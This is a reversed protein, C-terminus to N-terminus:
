TRKVVKRIDCVHKRLREIVYDIEEITNERSFSFRITSDIQLEKLGMASLVHSQKKRSSSCASGTAVFIGDQELSHLLVESKVGLFSINIIYPSFGDDIGGSVITTSITNRVGDILHKKLISVASCSTQQASFCSKVAEGLGIIAPSNETGPRIEKEQGGGAYIPIIKIGKRLYLVGIGKSAHIKHGSISLSDILCDDVDFILKGYSQTADVHFVISPNVKKISRGIKQIPLIRGTENNVHMISILVTKETIAELVQVPSVSGSKDASLYTVIFGEKELKKFVNLVSPHEINTTILHAGKMFHVKAIGQISLNNSETGGSTFYIESDTCGMSKAVIKRVKKIEKEIEIGKRHLSSPNGYLHEMARIQADIVEKIPKTTAANDLYIEM